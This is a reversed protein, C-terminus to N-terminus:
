AAGGLTTGADAAGIAAGICGFVSNGEKSSPAHESLQQKQQQTKLCIHLCLQPAAVLVHETKQEHQEPIYALLISPL